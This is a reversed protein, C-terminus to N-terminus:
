FEPLSYLLMLYSSMFVAKSSAKPYGTVTKYSYHSPTCGFYFVHYLYLVM